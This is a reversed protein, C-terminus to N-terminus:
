IHSTLLLLDLFAVFLLLQSQRWEVVGTSHKAPSDSSALRVTQCDGIGGRVLEAAMVRVVVTISGCDTVAGSAQKM